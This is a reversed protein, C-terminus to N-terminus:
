TSRGRGPIAARTPSTASAVPLGILPTHRGGVDRVRTRDDGHRADAGVSAVAPRSRRGRATLRRTGVVRRPAVEFPRRARDRSPRYRRRTTWRRSPRRGGAATACADDAVVAATVICAAAFMGFAHMTSFRDPWGGDPRFAESYEVVVVYGGIAAVTALAALAPLVRRGTLVLLAGGIAGCVAGWPGM